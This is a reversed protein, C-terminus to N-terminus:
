RGGRSVRWVLAWLSGGGNSLEGSYPPDIACLSLQQRHCPLPLFHTAPRPPTAIGVPDTTRLPRAVTAVTVMIEPAGSLKEPVWSVWAAKGTKSGGPGGPGRRRVLSSSKCHAPRSLDGPHEPAGAHSLSLKSRMRWAVEIGRSSAGRQSVAVRVYVCMFVCVCVYVCVCMCVSVCVCLCAYVCVCMCVYVCVCLCEYVCVSMCVSVFVCM